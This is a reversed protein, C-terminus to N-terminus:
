PTHISGDQIFQRFREATQAVQVDTVTSPNHANGAYYGVANRLAEARIQVDNPLTSVPNSRPTAPINGIALGATAGLAGSLFTRRDPRSM